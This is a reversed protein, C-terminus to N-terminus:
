YRFPFIQVLLGLYLETEPIIASGLNKGNENIDMSDTSSCGLYELLKAGRVHDLQILFYRIWKKGQPYNKQIAKILVSSSLHKRMSPVSRMVRTIFRTELLNVAKELLQVNQKLDLWYTVTFFKLDGDLVISSKEEPFADVDMAVNEAETM